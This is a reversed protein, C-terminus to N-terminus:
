KPNDCECCRGMIWRLLSCKKTPCDVPWAKGQSIPIDDPRKIARQSARKIESETLLLDVDVEALNVTTHYYDTM